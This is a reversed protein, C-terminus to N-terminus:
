IIGFRGRLKMPDCCPGDEMENRKVDKKTRNNKEWEMDNIM